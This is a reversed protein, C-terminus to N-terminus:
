GNKLTYKEVLLEKYNKRMETAILWAVYSIFTLIITLLLASELNSDASTHHIFGRENFYGLALINASVLLYIYTAFRWSGMLLSVMIIAPFVM